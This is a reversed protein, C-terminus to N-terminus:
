RTGSTCILCVCCPARLTHTKATRKSHTHTHTPGQAARVAAVRLLLIRLRLHLGGHVGRQRGGARRLEVVLEVVVLPQRGDAGALGQVGEFTVQSGGGRGGSGGKDEGFTLTESTLLGKVRLQLFTIVCSSSSSSPQSRVSSLTIGGQV